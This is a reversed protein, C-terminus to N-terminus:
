PDPCECGSRRLLEDVAFDAGCEECFVRVDVLVNADGLRLHAGDRLREISDRTVAETRSQLRRIREREKERREEPRQEPQELEVNRYKTLYTHIAQHSVFQSELEDVDVGQRALRNRVETRVGTSVDTDSLLRYTNEVEGDVTDVDANELATALLRRNFVDALERLSSREGNPATWREVLERDLMGLDYSEILRGVKSDTEDLGSADEAM